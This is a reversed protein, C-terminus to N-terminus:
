LVGLTHPSFGHGCSYKAGIKWIELTRSRSKKNQENMKKIDVKGNRMWKFLLFVNGKNGRGIVQVFLFNPKSNHTSVCARFFVAYHPWLANYIHLSHRVDEEEIELEVLLRRNRVWRRRRCLHYTKEVPGYGGMTAEVTYEFGSFLWCDVILSLHSVQICM